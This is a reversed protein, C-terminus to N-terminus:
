FIIKLVHTIVSLLPFMYMVCNSLHARFILTYVVKRVPKRSFTSSEGPPETSITTKPPMCIVISVGNHCATLSLSSPPLSPPLSFLPYPFLLLLSLFIFHFEETIRKGTLCIWANDLLGRAVM